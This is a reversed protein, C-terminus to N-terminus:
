SYTYIFLHLFHMLHVLCCTICFTVAEQSWSTYLKLLSRGSLHVASCGLSGPGGGDEDIKWPSPPAGAENVFYARIFLVPGFVGHGWRVVLECAGNVMSMIPVEEERRLATSVRVIRWGDDVIREHALLLGRDKL